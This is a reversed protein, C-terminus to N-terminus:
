GKVGTSTLSTIFQKRNSLFLVVLPSVTLLAAAMVAGWDSAGEAEAFFVIGAPPTFMKKSNIVILPWFFDNWHTVVSFIAFSGIAPRIMPVLITVLLRPIGCGEIKAAEFFDEPITLIYQRMLFICFPSAIFPVILASYTDIRKFQSLLLFNPIAAIYKPFVLAALIGVFLLRKLPFDRKAFAYAAPINVLLQGVLVSVAVVVGNFLYRVILTEKFVTVYNRLVPVKPFINLGTVMIERSDKFSTVLMMFFPFIMFLGTMCLLLTTIIDWPNVQKKM